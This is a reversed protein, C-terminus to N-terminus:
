LKEPRYGGRSRDYLWIAGFVVLLLAPLVAVFRFSEQAASALLAEKEPGEALADFAAKGGALRLKAEDFIGGLKPLVLYIALNGATGMLGIFLSGGRAFRESTIGLMTPWM